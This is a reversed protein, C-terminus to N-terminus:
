GAVTLGLWSEVLRVAEDVSTAHGRQDHRDTEVLFPFTGYSSELQVEFESDPHRAFWLGDNDGPYKVKLQHVSLRPKKAILAAITTNIDRTSM